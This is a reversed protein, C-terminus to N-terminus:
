RGLIHAYVSLTARCMNQQTFYQGVHRMGNKGIKKLRSTSLSLSAELAQALAMSDGAPALWGTAQTEDGTVVTERFGGDDSAIVPLGAAGAEIITRGFPEPRISPVVALDSAAYALPMNDVHGAFIVRATLGLEAIQAKLRDGYGSGAQGGGALVLVPAYDSSIAALAAILVHQGKIETIRAPCLIVFADQAVGWAQRCAVLAKKDWQKPNLRDVDCGRPIIHIKDDPVDHVRAIRQATYHSNAIVGAGRTLVSNYIVKLAPGSHVMGHYTALYPIQARRAAFFSSWAPARSRAHILDVNEARILAALKRSNAWMTLPNKSAMPLKIIEAGAEALRAELRGGQSAIVARGGAANLASAIELTTTEAGGGNLEPIVQLVTMGRCDPYLKQAGSV